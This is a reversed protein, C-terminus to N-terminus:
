KGLNQKAGAFFELAKALEQEDFDPWLVDTFYLESYASQWLLFNSLRNRGGCRIVLDPDAQGATYLRSAIAEETIEAPKIDDGLLDKVADVLEARGGYSLAINLVGATNGATKEEATKIATQLNQPLDSTRGIIKLRVNDQDLLQAQEAMAKALLEMLADVEAKERGWNETSFAYVTLTKIGRDRCLKAIQVFRKYGEYHGFSAPQGRLKAWRRNGDMIVALHNVQNM